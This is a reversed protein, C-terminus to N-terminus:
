QQSLALSARDRPLEGMSTLHFKDILHGHKKVAAPLWLRLHDELALVNADDMLVHEAQLLSRLYPTDLSGGHMNQVMLRVCQAVLNIIAQDSLLCSSDLFPPLTKAKFRHHRWIRLSEAFERRVDRFEHPPPRPVYAAKIPASTSDKSTNSHPVPPPPDIRLVDISNSGVGNIKKSAECVDCCLSTSGSRASPVKTRMIVTIWQPHSQANTDASPQESNSEPKALSRVCSDELSTSSDKLPNSSDEPSTPSTLAEHFRMPRDPLHSALIKTDLRMTDLLIERRCDCSNIFTRLNADMKARRLVAEKDKPVKLGLKQSITGNPDFAWQPALLIARGTRAPDRMARGFHQALSKLDPPLSFQVIRAIDSIDIGMGGAETAVVVRVSGTRFGEQMISKKYADSSLSTFPRVVGTPRGLFEYLLTSGRYAEIRTRVYIITKPIESPSDYSPNFLRLLDTMETISNRIPHVEYSINSRDTGADIALLNRRGLDLSQCVASLTGRPLTASVAACPIGMGIRARVTRIKAYEPRFARKDGASIRYGWDEVIHAEDVFIGGIRSTFSPESLLLSVNPNSLLMEPSAFILQFRGNELDKQLTKRAARTTQSTANPSSSILFPYQASLVSGHM